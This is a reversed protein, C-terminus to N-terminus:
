KNKILEKLEAIEKRAQTITSRNELVVDLLMSFLGVAFFKYADPDGKYMCVGALIFWMGSFFIFDLIRGGATPEVFKNDSM